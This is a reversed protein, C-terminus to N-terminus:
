GDLHNWSGPLEQSAINNRQICIAAPPITIWQTGSIKGEQSRNRKSLCLESHCERRAHIRVAEQSPGFAEGSGQLLWGVPHRSRPPNLLNEIFPNLNPVM